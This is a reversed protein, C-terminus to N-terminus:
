EDELCQQLKKGCCVKIYDGVYRADSRTGMFWPCLDWGQRSGGVECGARDLPCDSGGNLHVQAEFGLTADTNAKWRDFDLKPREPADTM